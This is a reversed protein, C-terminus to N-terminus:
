EVPVRIKTEKINMRTKNLTVFQPEEKERDYTENEYIKSEKVALIKVDVEIGQTLNDNSLGIYFTGQKLRDNRGYAARGKGKDFLYFEQRNLFQQVNQFDNIFYYEVDEGTQPIILETIAGVAVGALPTQYYINVVESLSNAVTELNKKYAEQAEQDAGLWYSWAVLKEEKLLSNELLPLDVRLYTRSVNDNYYSHVKQSKEFLM